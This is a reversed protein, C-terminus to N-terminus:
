SVQEMWLLEEGGNRLVECAAALWAENGNSAAELGLENLSELLGAIDEAMDNPFLLHAVIM